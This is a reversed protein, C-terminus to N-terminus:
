VNDKEKFTILDVSVNQMTGDPMEVIASTYQGISTDFEEFNAGYQIFIGEGIFRKMYTGHPNNMASKHWDYVSVIRPKLPTVPLLKPPENFVVPKNYSDIIARLRVMYDCSANEKYERVLRSHIFMLIEKDTTM